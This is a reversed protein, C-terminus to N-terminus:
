SVWKTVFIDTYYSSYKEDIIIAIIRKISTNFNIIQKRLTTLILVGLNLLVIIKFGNKIKAKYGQIASELHLIFGIQSIAHFILNISVVEMMNFMLINISLVPIAILMIINAIIYDMHFRNSYNRKTNWLYILLLSQIVLTTVNLIIALDNEM